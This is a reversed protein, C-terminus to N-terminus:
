VDNIKKSVQMELSVMMLLVYGGKSDNIEDRVQKYEKHLKKYQFMNSLVTSAAKAAKIKTPSSFILKCMLVLLRVMAFVTYQFM